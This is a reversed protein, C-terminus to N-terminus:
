LKKFAPDSQLLELFEREFQIGTRNHDLFLRVYIIDVSFNIWVGFSLRQYTKLAEQRSERCVHLSAPTIASYPTPSHWRGEDLFELELIRPELVALCWIKLRIEPALRPFCTFTSLTIREEPVEM